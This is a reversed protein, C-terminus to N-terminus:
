DRGFYADVAKQDLNKTSTQPTVDPEAPLDRILSDWEATTADTLGERKCHEFVRTMVGRDQGTPWKKEDIHSYFLSLPYDKWVQKRPKVADGNRRPYSDRFRWNNATLDNEPGLKTAHTVDWESCQLAYMGGQSYEKKIRNKMATQLKSDKAKGIADLHLTSMMPGPVKNQQLRMALAPNIMWKQNFVAVEKVTIIQNMPPRADEKLRTTNMRAKPTRGSPESKSKRKPKPKINSAKESLTVQANKVLGQQALVPEAVEPVALDASVAYSQASGSRIPPPRHFEDTTFFDGPGNYYSFTIGAPQSAMTEGNSAEMPKFTQSHNTNHSMPARLNHDLGLLDPDIQPETAYGFSPVTDTKIGYLDNLSDVNTVAVMWGNGQEHQEKWASPIPWDNLQTSPWM